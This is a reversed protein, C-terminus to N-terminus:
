NFFIQIVILDVCKTFAIEFSCSPYTDNKHRVKIKLCFPRNFDCIPFM